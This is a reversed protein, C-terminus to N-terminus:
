RWQNVGIVNIRGWKVDNIPCPSLNFPFQRSCPNSYLIFIFLYTIHDRIYNCLCMLPNIVLWLWWLLWGDTSTTSSIGKKEVIFDIPFCFCYHGKRWKWVSLLQIKLSSPYQSNHRVQEGWFPLRGEQLCQMIHPM